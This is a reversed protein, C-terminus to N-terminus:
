LARRRRREPHTAAPRASRRPGGARGRGRPEPLRLRRRPPHDARPPARRAAQHPLAARRRARGRPPGQRRLPVGGRAARAAGAAREGAALVKVVFPVGRAARVLLAITSPSLLDHAHVVDPRLRAVTAAGGATFPVSAARGSTAPIRHVTLGPEAVRPETGPPRRTVVDVTLGGAALHPGLRQLQRQAGGLVPPYSQIVHAVRM